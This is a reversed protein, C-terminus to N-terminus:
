AADKPMEHSFYAEGQWQRLEGSYYAAASPRNKCFSIANEEAPAWDIGFKELPTARSKDMGDYSKKTRDLYNLKGDEREYAVLSPQPRDTDNVIFFNM